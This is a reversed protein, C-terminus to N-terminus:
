ETPADTEPTGEAADAELAIMEAAVETELAIVEAVAEAAEAVSAATQAVAELSVLVVAQCAVEHALTDTPLYEQTLYALLPRYEQEDDEDVTLHESEALYELAAEHAAQYVDSAAHVCAVDVSLEENHSRYSALEKRAAADAAAAIAARTAQYAARGTRAAEIAAERLARVAEAVTTEASVTMTAEAESM